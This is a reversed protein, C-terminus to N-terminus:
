IKVSVFTGDHAEVRVVELGRFERLAEKCESYLFLANERTLLENYPPVTKNRMEEFAAEPMVKLLFGGLSLPLPVSIRIKGSRVKVKM